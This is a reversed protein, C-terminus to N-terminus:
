QDFESGEFSYKDEFDWQDRSSILGRENSRIISFIYPSEPTTQDGPNSQKQHYSSSLSRPNAQSEIESNIRSIGHLIQNKDKKTAFARNFPSKRQCDILETSPPSGSTLKQHMLKYWPQNDLQNKLGNFKLSLSSSPSLKVNRGNQNTLPNFVTPRNPSDNRVFTLDANLIEEHLENMAMRDISIKILGHDGGALISKQKSSYSLSWIRECNTQVYRAMWRRHIQDYSWWIVKGERDGTVFQRSNTWVTSLVESEVAIEDIQKFSSIDWIKLLKGKCTSILLGASKNLRLSRISNRHASFSYVCNWFGPLLKWVNIAGDAHALILLRLDWDFLAETLLSNSSSICKRANSDNLNWEFVDGLHGIIIVTYDNEDIFLRRVYIGLGFTGILSLNAAEFVRINGDSCGAIVWKKSAVFALCAASHRRIETRFIEQGSEVSWCRITRDEACSYLISENDGYVHHNIWHKHGRLHNINTKMLPSAYILQKNSYLHIEYNSMEVNQRFCEFILRKAFPKCNVSKAPSSLLPPLCSYSPRHTSSEGLVSKSM